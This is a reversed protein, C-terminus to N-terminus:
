SSFTRGTPSKKRSRIATADGWHSFPRLRTNPLDWTQIYAPNSGMSRTEHNQVAQGCHAKFCAKAAEKWIRTSEGNMITDMDWGISHRYLIPFTYKQCYVSVVFTNKVGRWPRQYWCPSWSFVVITDFAIFTDWTMTASIHDSTV